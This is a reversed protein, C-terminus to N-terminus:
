GTAAGPLESDSFDVLAHELWTEVRASLLTLEFVLEHQQQEETMGDAYGPVQARYLEAFDRFPAGARRIEVRNSSITAGSATPPTLVAIRSHDFEVVKPGEPATTVYWVGPRDSKVFRMMRSSPRGSADTSSIVVRNTEAAVSTFRDLAREALLAGDRRNAKAFDIAAQLSDFGQPGEVFHLIQPIYASIDEGEYYFRLWRRGAHLDSSYRRRLKSEKKALLRRGPGTRLADRGIEVGLLAGLVVSAIALQVWSAKGAEARDLALFIGTVVAAGLAGALAVLSARYRRVRYLIADAARQRRKLHVERQKMEAILQQDAISLPM